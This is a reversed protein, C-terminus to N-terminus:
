NDGNNEEKWAMLDRTFNKYNNGMVNKETSGICIKIEERNCDEVWEM